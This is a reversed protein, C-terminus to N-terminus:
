GAHLIREHWDIGYSSMASIHNVQVRRNLADVVQNEKAKIYRIQFEFENFTDLRRSKMANLNPQDFLYRLGSHDSM